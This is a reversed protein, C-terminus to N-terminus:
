AAQKEPPWDLEAAEIRARPLAQLRAAADHAYTVLRQAAERSHADSRYVNRWLADGLAAPDDWHEAYIEMRGNLAFAMNQVKRGISVDGIGMERLSQDMDAVMAEVVQRMRTQMADDARQRQSHTLLFVHLTILDFRGDVTDPVGYDHYLFPRRAQAVLALYLRQAALRADSPKFWRAISTYIM